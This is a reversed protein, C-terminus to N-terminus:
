TESTTASGQKVLKRESKEQANYTAELKSYSFALPRPAGVVAEFNPFNIPSGIAARYSTYIKLMANYKRVEDEYVPKTIPNTGDIDLIIWARLVLQERLHEMLGVVEDSFAKDEHYKVKREEKVKQYYQRDSEKRTKKQMEIAAM